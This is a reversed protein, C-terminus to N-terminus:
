IIELPAFRRGLITQSDTCLWKELITAYVQRFDISYRVDGFDLNQLDPGDNYFGPKKLSGGM